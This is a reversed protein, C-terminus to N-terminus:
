FNNFTLEANPPSESVSLRTNWQLGLAALSPLGYIMKLISVESQHFKEKHAKSPILELGQM